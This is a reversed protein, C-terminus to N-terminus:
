LDPKEPEHSDPSPSQVARDDRDLAPYQVQRTRSVTGSLQKRAAKRKRHQDRAKRDASLQAKETRV